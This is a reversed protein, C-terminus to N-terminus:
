GMWRESSSVRRSSTRLHTRLFSLPPSTDRTIRAESWPALRSATILSRSFLHFIAVDPSCEPRQQGTLSTSSRGSQAVSSRPKQTSAM